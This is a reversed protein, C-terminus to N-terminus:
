SVQSTVTMLSEYLREYQRAIEDQQFNQQIRQRAAAGLANRGEVGIAILRQWGDKLAQPDM